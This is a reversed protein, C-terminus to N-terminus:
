IVTGRTVVVHCKLRTNIIETLMVERVQSGVTIAGTIIKFM